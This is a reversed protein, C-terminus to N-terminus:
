FRKSTVNLDTWKKLDVIWDNEEKIKTLEFSNKVKCKETNEKIFHLM